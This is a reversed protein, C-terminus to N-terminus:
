AAEVLHRDTGDPGFGAIRHPGWFIAVTGHPYEHLRVKARAFHPRPRSATIRLRLGRRGVTNDHAVTRTEHRCVIDHWQEPRRAVFATDREQAAVAFRANHRPLYVEAIVRIAAEGDKV